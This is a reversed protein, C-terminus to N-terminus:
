IVESAVLVLMFVYHDSTPDPLHKPTKNNDMTLTKVLSTAPQWKTLSCHLTIKRYSQM